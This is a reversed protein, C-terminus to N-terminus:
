GNVKYGFYERVAASYLAIARCLPDIDEEVGDSLKYACYETVSYSIVYDYSVKGGDTQCLRFYYTDAFKKASIEDLTFTGEEDKLVFSENGKVMLSSIDKGTAEAKAKLARYDADTWVLLSLDSGGVNGEAHLRLAVNDLLVLQATTIHITSNCNVIPAANARILVSNDGGLGRKDEPLVSNVPFSSNYKFYEQAESGYNLMSSLLNDFLEGSGYSARVYDAPSYSLANSRLEGVAGFSSSRICIQVSLADGMKRSPIGDTTFVYIGANESDPSYESYNGAADEAIMVVEADKLSSLDDVQATFKLAINDKLLLGVSLFRMDVTHAAYIYEGGSVTESVLGNNKLSEVPLSSRVIGGNLILSYKGIDLSYDYLSLTIGAGLEIDSSLKVDRQALVTYNYKETDSASAVADSFSTYAVRSILKSGEYKDVLFEPLDGIRKTYSPLCCWGSKGNYTTYGWDGKIETVYMQTGRPMVDLSSYGTGPGSRLRMGSEYTIEYIGKTSVSPTPEDEVGGGMAATLEEDEFWILGELTYASKRGYYSVLQDITCKIASGEKYYKGGLTLNFSDSFYVYGDIIGHILFSHGYKKGATTSTWQFGVLVDTVVDGQAAIKELTEKFTDNTAPYDHIKRGGGTYSLNKYNDYEDNGNGGVYRTNIGLLLLQTNVYHACYNKFTSYGTYRKAWAYTYEIRDVLDAGTPIEVEAYTPLMMTPMLMCVCLAFAVIRSFRKKTIQM